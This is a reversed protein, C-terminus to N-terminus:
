WEPLRDDYHLGPDRCRIREQHEEESYLFGILMFRHGRTVRNAGHVLACPFVLASGPDPCYVDDTYEPFTVGGGEFDDNLNVSV